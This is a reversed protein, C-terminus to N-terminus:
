RGWDEEAERTVAPAVRTRSRSGCAAKLFTLPNATLGADALATSHYQQAFHPFHSPAPRPSAAIPRAQLCRTALRWCLSNDVDPPSSTHVAASSCGAWAQQAMTAFAAPFEREDAAKVILVQRGITRGATEVEKMQFEAGPASPHFLAAIAVTKPVLDHLLGLRKAILHSATFVM